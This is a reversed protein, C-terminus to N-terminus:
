IKIDVASSSTDTNLVEHGDTSAENTLGTSSTHQQQEEDESLQKHEKPDEKSIRLTLSKGYLAPDHEILYKHDKMPVKDGATIRRAIELCTMYIKLADKEAEMQKKTAETERKLQEAIKEQRKLEQEREQQKKLQKEDDMAQKPVQAQVISSQPYGNAEIRM